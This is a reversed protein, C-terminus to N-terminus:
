DINFGKPEKLYQPTFSTTVAKATRLAPCVCGKLYQDIIENKSFYHLLLDFILLVQRNKRYSESDSNM